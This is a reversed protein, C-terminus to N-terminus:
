ALRKEYVVAEWVVHMGAREYLRTAGTPNEADVGLQVRREGRDWFQRVARQLLALGVGRRRWRPRVGISAIWGGGLERGALLTAAVEEDALRGLVRSAFSEFTEPRRGWEDAFAEEKAAHFERLQEREVTRPDLGAPWLPEPPPAHLEIAMRYFRRVERYGRAEFLRLGPEDAALTAAGIRDFGLERGRAETRELIASGFGRGRLEPHVYGDTHLREHRTLVIGYAAVLGDLEWLWADQELDVDRWDDLIDEARTDSVGCWHLDYAVTLEAVAEADESRAPRAATDAVSSSM